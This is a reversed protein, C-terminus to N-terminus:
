ETDRTRGGRKSVVAVVSAVGLETLSPRRGAIPEEAAAARVFAAHQGSYTNKGDQLFVEGHALPGYGHAICSREIRLREKRWTATLPAWFSSGGRVLDCVFQNGTLTDRVVPDGTVVVSDDAHLLSVDFYAVTGLRIEAESLAM